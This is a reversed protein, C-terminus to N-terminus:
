LVNAASEEPLRYKEVPLESDYVVPRLKDSLMTLSLGVKSISSKKVGELKFTSICHKSSGFGTHLAKILM